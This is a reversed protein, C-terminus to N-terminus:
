MRAAQNLQTLCAKMSAKSGSGSHIIRYQSQPATLWHGKAMGEVEFVLQPISHIGAAHVKQVERHIDADSIIEGDLVRQANEMNLGAYAACERLMETSDLRIPRIETDKGMFWRRSLAIWM